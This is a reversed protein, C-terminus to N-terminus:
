RDSTRHLLEPLLRERKSVGHLAFPSVAYVCREREFLAHLKPLNYFPVRPYAHHEAHYNMNAWLASLWPNRVTVTNKSMDLRDDGTLFLLPYHEYIRGIPNLIFIAVLAPAPFMFFWQLGKGLQSFWAYLALWLTFNIAQELLVTNRVRAGYRTIAILTYWPFYLWVRFWSQALSGAFFFEDPDKRPDSIHGHHRRHTELSTTFAMTHTLACCRGFWINARESRFASFHMCDHHLIFIAYVLNGTIVSLPVLQWWERAHFTATLCLAYLLFYPAAHL